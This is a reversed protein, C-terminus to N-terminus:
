NKLAFDVYLYLNLMTIPCFSFVPCIYNNRKAIVFSRELERFRRAFKVRWLYIEISPKTFFSFLVNMANCMVISIVFSVIARSKLEEAFFNRYCPFIFIFLEIIKIVCSLELYNYSQEPLEFSNYNICSYLIFLLM